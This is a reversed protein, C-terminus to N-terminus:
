RLSEMKSGNKALGSDMATIVSPRVAGHDAYHKRAVTETHGMFTERESVTAGALELEREVTRRLTHSTVDPLGARDFVRRMLQVHYDRNPEPSGPPAFIYKVGDREETARVRRELAERAGGRIPLTSLSLDSKGVPDWVREGGRKRVLKGAVTVTGAELDVDELRLSSAEGVRLGQYRIVLALDAIDDREKKLQALFRADEEETLAQNKRREAGNAYDRTVKKRPAQIPSVYLMPNESIAKAKVARKLIGGLVARWNRLQSHAGISTIRSMEEEIQLATLRRLPVHGILSKKSLMHARIVSAYVYATSPALELDGDELAQLYVRAARRVTAGGLDHDIGEREKTQRMAAELSETAGGKTEGEATIVRVRHTAPDHYRVEARWLKPRVKEQKLSAESRWLGLRPHKGRMTTKGFEGPELARRAMDGDYSM